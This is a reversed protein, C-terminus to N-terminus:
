LAVPASSTKNARECLLLSLGLTRTGRLPQILEDHIPRQSLQRLPMNPCFRRHTDALVLCAVVKSKSTETSRTYQCFYCSTPYGLGALMLISLISRPEKNLGSSRVLQHHPCSPLDPILSCSQDTFSQSRGPGSCLLSARKRTAKRVFGGAGTNMAEEVTDVSGNASVFLVKSDPSVARIRLAAEVGNLTPFGIDLRIVDPQLEQAQQVAELGDSAQGVVKIEREKQLSQLVFLRWREFDDVVLIRISSSAM